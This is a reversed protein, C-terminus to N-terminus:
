RQSASAATVSVTDASIPDLRLRVSSVRGASEEMAGVELMGEVLLPLRTHPLAVERYPEPLHVFIHAPPLDDALGDSVEETAVPMPVLIFVGPSALEQHVMFGRIRVRKGNLALLKASPELGLPGIPMRFLENFKLDSTGQRPPPITDPAVLPKLLRVVTSDVIPGVSDGHSLLPLLAVVASLLQIRM